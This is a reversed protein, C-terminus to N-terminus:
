EERDKPYPSPNLQLKIKDLFSGQILNIAGQLSHKLAEPSADGHCKMIIGDMGCLIAGPYEASYLEKELRNLLPKSFPLINQNQHL